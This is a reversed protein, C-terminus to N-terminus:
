AARKQEKRLEALRKAQDDSLSGAKQLLKKREDSPLKDIEKLRMVYVQVPTLKGKKQNDKVIGGLEKITRQIQRRKIIRAAIRSPISFPLALTRFGFVVPYIIIGLIPGTKLNFRFPNIAKLNLEYGSPPAYGGKKNGVLKLGKALRELHYLRVAKAFETRDAPKIEIKDGTKSDGKLTRYAFERTDRAKIQASEDMAFRPGAERAFFGYLKNAKRFDPAPAKKEKKHERKKPRFLRM